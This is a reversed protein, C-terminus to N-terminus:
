YEREIEEKEKNHGERGRKRGRMLKEREAEGEKV